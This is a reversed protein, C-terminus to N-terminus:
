IAWCTIANSSLVLTNVVCVHWSMPILRQPTRVTSGTNVPARSILVALINMLTSKGSGSAGVIAVMEGREITLNVDKLVTLTEDGAAFHRYVHNIQLLAQSM